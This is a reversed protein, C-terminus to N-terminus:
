DWDDKKDQKDRAAQFQEATLGLQKGVVADEPTLIGPRGSAAAIRDTPVGPPLKEAWSTLLVPSLKALKLAEDRM